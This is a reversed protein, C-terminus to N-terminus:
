PSPFHTFDFCSATQDTCGTLVTFARSAPSANGRVSMWEVTFAAQRYATLLFTVQVAPQARFKGAIKQFFKGGIGLVTIIRVPCPDFLAPDPRFLFITSM